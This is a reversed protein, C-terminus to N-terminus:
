KLSKLQRLLESRVYPDKTMEPLLKYFKRIKLRYQAELDALDKLYEKERQKDKGLWNMWQMSVGKDTRMFTGPNPNLVKLKRKLISVAQKMAEDYTKYTVPKGDATVGENYLSTAVAYTMVLSHRTFEKVAEDSLPNAFGYFTDSFEKYYPTRSTYIKEKIFNEPKNPFVEEHFKSYMRRYKTKKKKFENDKNRLKDMGRYIGFSGKAFDLGAQKSTLLLAQASKETAMFKSIQESALQYFNLVAPYMTQEMSEGEYWRLANGLIGLVEGRILIHNFYRAADSNETPPTEDFLLDYAAIMASGALFPGMGVMALKMMDGNKYAISANSLTNTTAAYAMRQFLTLPRLLPQDAWAPMFFNLSAGQTKVHAMTDMKDYINNMVRRQKDKAFKSNFDVNDVNGLGYTKLEQIEKKSLSYFKELKLNAADVDRKSAYKNSLVKVLREQEIRSAAIAIYRNINETPKMGGVKFINDLGKRMLDSKVDEIHRLGLETAGLAKVENRFDKNFSRVVARMYETVRFAQLTAAQGLVLNKLGSTPFSLQTKALVQALGSLAGAGMATRTKGYGIQSEVQEIVFDGIKSDLGKIKQLAAKRGPFDFSEIDVYEPFVETNAILKSMGLSYPKITNEYKTEYVQIEKGDVEVVEPLKVHRKLLFRSKYSTKNINGLDLFNARVIDEADKMVSGIQEDTPTSTKYEKKALDIAVPLKQQDVIKRIAAGNVDLLKKFEPTLLRSMYTNDAIWEINNNQKFTEYEALSLNAKIAQQFSKRVYQTYEGWAMALQGEKTDPNYAEKANKYKKGKGINKVVNGNKDEILVDKKYANTFFNREYQILKKDNNLEIYRDIDLLYMSDKIGQGKKSSVKPLKGYLAGTFTGNWVNKGFIQEAKGEFEIFKGVHSIEQSLHNELSAAVRKFGLKKILTGVPLALKMAQLKEDSIKAIEDSIESLNTELIGALKNDGQRGTTYLIQDLAKLDSLSNGWLGAKKFGLAVTLDKLKEATVVSPAVREIRGIIQTKQRIDKANKMEAFPLLKFTDSFAAMDAESMTPDGLRFNEWDEIRASKRAVYQVLSNKDTVGFKLGANKISSEFDQEIGKAMEEVNKYKFKSISAAKISSDTAFGKFVKEGLVSKIDNKNLSSKGFFVQKITTYVRDVWSKMKSRLSPSQERKLAYAALEDAMFEELDRKKKVGDKYYTRGPDNRFIKEGQKWVAKLDVNGSSDIMAKLRHANEHFFTFKNAKGMTIDIVGEYFRGVYDVDMLKRIKLGKNQKIKEKLWPSLTQISEPEGVSDMQFKGEPVVYEEGARETQGRAEAREKVTVDKEFIARWIRGLSLGSEAKSPKSATLKGVSEGKPIIDGLNYYKANLSDYIQLKGDTSESLYKAFASIKKAENLSQFLKANGARKGAISKLRDMTDKPLNDIMRIKDPTGRKGKSQVIRIGDDTIDSVTLRAIEEPRAEAKMALEALSLAENKSVNIKSKGSISNFSHTKNAYNKLYNIWSKLGSPGDVITIKRVGKVGVKKFAKLPNVALTTSLDGANEGFIEYLNDRIKDIERGLTIKQGPSLDKYAAADQFYPIGTKDEIFDKALKKLQIDSLDLIGKNYKTRTFKLLDDLNDALVKKKGRYKPHNDFVYASLDADEQFTFRNQLNYKKADKTDFLRASDVIEKIDQKDILGLKKSLKKQKELLELLLQNDSTGTIPTATDTARQGSESIIKWQTDPNKINKNERNVYEIATNRKMTRTIIEPQGASDLLGTNQQITVNDSDDAEMQAEKDFKIGTLRQNLEKFYNETDEIKKDLILTATDFEEPSIDTNGEEDGLKRKKSESLVSKFRTDDNKLDQWAGLEILRIADVAERAEDLMSESPTEGERIMKEVEKIIKQKQEFEAVKDKGIIFDSKNNNIDTFLTPDFPIGEDEFRQKINAEAKTAVDAEDSLQKLLISVYEHPEDYNKFKRFSDTFGEFAFTFATEQAFMANWEKTGFDPYDQYIDAFPSAVSRYFNPLGTFGVSEVAVRGPFGAAIKTALGVGKDGAAHKAAAYKTAMFGRTAAGVPLGLVFSETFGQAGDMFLKQADISGTEQRQKNASAAVSYATGITGLQIGTEMGASIMAPALVRDAVKSEAGKRMGAIGLRNLGKSTLQGGLLGLKTGTAFAASEAVSLMGVLFGGAEQAYDMFDDPQEFSYDEIKYKSEGNILQYAQGALSENYKKGWFDPAIGSDALAGAVSFTAFRNALGRTENIDEPSTGISSLYSGDSAMTNMNQSEDLTDIQPGVYDPVEVNHESKAYQAVLGYVDEDSMLRTQYPSQQRYKAILEEQTYPKAM